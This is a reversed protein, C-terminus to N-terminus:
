RVESGVMADPDVPRPCGLGGVLAPVVGDPAVRIPWAPSRTRTNECM